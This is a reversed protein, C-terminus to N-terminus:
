VVPALLRLGLWRWLGWAALAYVGNSVLACVVCLEWRDLRAIWRMVLTDILATLFFAAVLFSWGPRRWEPLVQVWLALDLAHALTLAVLLRSWPPPQESRAVLTMVPSKILVVSVALAVLRKM